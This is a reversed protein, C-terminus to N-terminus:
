KGNGGNNIVIRRQARIGNELGDIYANLRENETELNVIRKRLAANEEMLKERLYIPLFKEILWKRLRKM